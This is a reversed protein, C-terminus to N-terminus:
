RSARGYTQALFRLGDIHSETLDGDAFRWSWNGGVTGPLNMRANSGLRLVDQIPVVAYEAVSAFALRILDWGIDLGQTAAYDLVQQRTPPDLSAFWGVTTDNDHTGTYVVMNSTFNYPLATSWPGLGFAFQLVQMGPFGFEERLQVVDPTIVGLDEAIIPLRGLASELAAFLDRGPGPVWDGQVATDNGFPVAWAAAFGRFHDLRVIDVLELLKRMRDIWWDYGRAKMVDWRYHPNGWLQGTATFYDPPVGAVVVPRGEQDLEFLDQRAWVDASDYAVFIPIDGVIRIGRENACRKLETWQSFFLYQAWRHFRIEAAYREGAERLAHPERRRLPEPWDSWGALDHAGKIAMYLAFDDLWDRNAERFAAVEPLDREGIDLRGFARRLIATKIPVVSGFDVRRDTDARLTNLDDQQLLGREVLPQLSLLFPNGAFASLAAYPSDAYGTPGLPLVQWLGLHAAHLLDVFRYASEGLTGIGGAGPLSTPHLLIGATRSSAM